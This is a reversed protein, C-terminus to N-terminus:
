GFVRRLVWLCGWPTNVWFGNITRWSTQGILVVGGTASAHAWGVGLRLQLYRKGKPIIMIHRNLRGM